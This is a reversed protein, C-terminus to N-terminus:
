VYKTQVNVEVIHGNIFKIQTVFYVPYTESVYHYHTVPGQLYEILHVQTVSQM